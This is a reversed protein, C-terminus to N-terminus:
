VLVLLKAAKSLSQYRLEQYRKAFDRHTQKSMVRLLRFNKLERDKFIEKKLDSGKETVETEEVDTELINEINNFFNCAKEAGDREEYVIFAYGKAAPKSLSRSLPHDPSFKPLIIRKIPGFNVFIRQLTDESTDHHFSEIYITELDGDM